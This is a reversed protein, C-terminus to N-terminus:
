HIFALSAAVICLVAGEQGWGEELFSDYPGNKRNMYSGLSLTPYKHCTRLDLSAYLSATSMSIHHGFERWLLFQQGPQQSHQWCLVGLQQCCLVEEMWAMGKRPPGCLFVSQLSSTFVWCSWCSSPFIQHVIYVGMPHRALIEVWSRGRGLGVDKGLHQSMM